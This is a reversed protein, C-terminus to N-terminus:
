MTPAQDIFVTSSCEALVMGNGFNTYDSLTTIVYDNGSFRVIDPQYRLASAYKSPGRLLFQTIVTITNGQTQYNEDRALDNNGSPTIFGIADHYTVSVQSVGYNDVTERRRLVIFRDRPKASSILPAAISFFDM